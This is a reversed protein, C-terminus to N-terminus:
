RARHHLPNQLAPPLDYNDSTNLYILFIVAFILNGILVGISVALTLAIWGMPKRGYVNQLSRRKRELDEEPIKM